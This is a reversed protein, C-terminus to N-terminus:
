NQSNNSAGESNILIGRKGKKNTEGKKRFNFGELIIGLCFCALIPSKKFL